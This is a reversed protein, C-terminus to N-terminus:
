LRITRGHALERVLWQQAIRFYEQPHEASQKGAMLLVGRQLYGGALAAASALVSATRMERGTLAQLSHVLLPTIIGLGLVGLRYTAGAAPKELPSRVRERQWQADVKANFVLESISAMLALRELRRVSPETDPLCHLILTLLATATATASAGFMAPLSRYAVAWLPTSTAALLSGTYTALLAGSVAAPLGALRALTRGSRLGFLDSGLQGLAALGTSTGFTLLTWSGISMPSTPRFVRLMNYWRSRTKLDLILLPPRILAGALAVYRGASVLLRDRPHDLLDVISAIVQAAGALGGVFFYTAILWRWESAKLAPRGYYTPPWAVDPVSGLVDVSHRGYPTRITDSV